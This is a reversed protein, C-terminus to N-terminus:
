LAPSHSKATLSTESRNLVNQSGKGGGTMFSYLASKKTLERPQSPAHGGIYTGTSTKSGSLRVQRSTTEDDLDAQIGALTSDERTMLKGSGRNMRPTSHLELSGVIGDDGGDDDEDINTVGDRSKSVDHTSESMDGSGAMLMDDYSDKSMTGDMLDQMGRNIFYSTDAAETVQPKFPAENANADEFNYAEFFEHKQLKPPVLRRSARPDLLGAIVDKAADSIAEGDEPYDIPRQSLINGFIKEPSEDNYPPIGVLFEYLCIGLAWWDVSSDHGAGTLLEPALYDPTGLAGKEEATPPQINFATAAVDGKKAAQRKLTTSDAFDSDSAVVIKSLGFDTLKLRGEATILMNDPKIDRHIIGNHHLYDLALVAEGAYVMAMEEPFTGLNSLLSSLDGGM